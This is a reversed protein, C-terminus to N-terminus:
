TSAMTTVAVHPKWTTKEPPAERISDIARPYDSRFTTPSNKPSVKIPPPMRDYMVWWKMSLNSLFLIFLTRIATIAPSVPTLVRDITTLM